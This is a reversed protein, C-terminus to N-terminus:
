NRCYVKRFNKGEFRGQRADLSYVSHGDGWLYREESNAHDVRGASDFKITLDVGGFAAASPLPFYAYDGFAGENARIPPGLIQRVESASMGVKLQRLSECTINLPPHYSCGSLLFSSACAMAVVGREMNLSRTM